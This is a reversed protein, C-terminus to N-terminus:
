HPRELWLSDTEKNHCVVLFQLIFFLITENRAYRGSDGNDALLNNHKIKM